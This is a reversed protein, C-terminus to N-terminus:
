DLGLPDSRGTKHTTASEVKVFSAVLSQVKVAGVGEGRSGEMLRLVSTTAYHVYVHGSKLIDSTRGFFRILWGNVHEWRSSRSIFRGSDDAGRTSDM